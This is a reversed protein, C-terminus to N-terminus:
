SMHVFTDLFTERKVIKKRLSKSNVEISRDKKYGDIYSTHSPVKRVSNQILSTVALSFFELIELFNEGFCVTKLLM